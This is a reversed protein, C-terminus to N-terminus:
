AARRENGAIELPEGTELLSKLSCIIASWGASIQPYVLSDEDFDDHTVRLRCVTGLPEIEYAVRSPREKSMADDYLVHWSYVLRRPKEVEQVEGEVVLTGDDYTFEVRDGVNWGSAVNTAHFYRRTFEASTIATWIREPEARIYTEYIHAPGRTESM